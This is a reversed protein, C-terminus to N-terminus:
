YGYQRIRESLEGAPVSQSVQRYREASWIEIKKVCGVIVADKDIGAYERLRASILVRGNKLPCEEANASIARLLDGKEPTYPESALKEYRELWQRAPYGALCRDSVTVVLPPEYVEMLADRVKAPLHVRGKPDVSVEYTGIFM